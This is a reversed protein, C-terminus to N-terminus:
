FTTRLVEGGQLLTVDSKRSNLRSFEMLYDALLILREPVTPM